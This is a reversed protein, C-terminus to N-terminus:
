AFLEELVTLVGDNNNSLCTYKAADKVNQPANDVAYSRGCYQLMEIDNGGDGFAVCQDPTLNWREVLRKLGSAKHCGELILDIAGHGSTVPILAGNLRERLLDYYYDTKEEPVFQAFKLFRDDVKKLDDVWELRHYYIAMTDFAEQTMSGRQAYASEAGCLFNNIEPYESCVDIVFDVTQKPVDATFILESHDKVFAGNEAVFSLEDYYGDFFDRLQYYQNGSAVVFNCGAANMKSLIKKFRPVDYTNDSHLFTGDMDTAVLKISNSM